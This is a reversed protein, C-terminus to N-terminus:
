KSRKRPKKKAANAKATKEAAKNVGKDIAADKTRAAKQLQDIADLADRASAIPNVERLTQLINGNPDLIFTTRMAEKHKM